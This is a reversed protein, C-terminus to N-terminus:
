FPKRYLAMGYLSTRKGAEKGGKKRRCPWRLMGRLRDFYYLVEVAPFYLYWRRLKRVFPFNYPPNLYVTTLPAFGATMALSAVEDLDIASEREDVYVDKRFRSRYLLRRLIFGANPEFVALVGGNALARYANEFALQRQKKALHHLSVWFVAVELLDPAFIPRSIDACIRHLTAPARKLASSSIDCVFVEGGECNEKIYRACHGEGGGLEAFRFVQDDGSENMRCHQALLDLFRRYVAPRFFSVDQIALENFIHMQQLTDEDVSTAGRLDVIGDKIPFRGSGCDAVLVSGEQHLRGGDEPSVVIDSYSFNPVVM